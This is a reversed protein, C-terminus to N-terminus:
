PPATSHQIAWLPQLFAGDKTGHMDSQLWGKLMCYARLAHGLAVKKHLVLLVM